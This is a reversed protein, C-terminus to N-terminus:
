MESGDFFQPEKPPKSKSPKQEKKPPVVEMVDGDRIRRTWYGDLEVSKGDLPLHQKTIPDRVLVESNTPKVFIKGM